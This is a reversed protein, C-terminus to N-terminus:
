SDSASEHWYQIEAYPLPPGCARLPQSRPVDEAFWQLPGMMAVPLLETQDYAQYM